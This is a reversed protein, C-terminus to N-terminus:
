VRLGGLGLGLVLLSSTGYHKPAAMTTIKSTRPVAPPWHVVVISATQQKQKLNFNSYRTHHNGSTNSNSNSTTDKPLLVYKVHM